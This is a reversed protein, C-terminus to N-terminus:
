RIRVASLGSSHHTRVLLASGGNPRDTVAQLLLITGRETCLCHGGTTQGIHVDSSADLKFNPMLSASYLPNQEPRAVTESFTKGQEPLMVELYTIPRASHM